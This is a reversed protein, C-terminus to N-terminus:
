RGVPKSNGFPDPQPQCLVEVDGVRSRCEQVGSPDRVCRITLHHDDVWELSKAGAYDDGDGFYRYAVYRTCFGAGKVTVESAASDRLESHSLLAVRTRDASTFIFHQRPAGRRRSYGCAFFVGPWLDPGGRSYPCGKAELQEADTTGLDPDRCHLRAIGTRGLHRESSPRGHLASIADSGWQV